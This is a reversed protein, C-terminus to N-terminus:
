LAPNTSLDSKERTLDQALRRSSQRRWPEIPQALYLWWAYRWPILISVIVIGICSAPVNVIDPVWGIALGPRCLLASCGFRNERSRSSCSRRPAHWEDGTWAVRNKYPGCPKPAPADADMRAMIDEPPLGTHLALQWRPGIM